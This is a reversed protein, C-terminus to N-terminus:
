QTLSCAVRYFKQPGAPGNTVTTSSNVAQLFGAPENTFPQRLDSTSQVCYFLGRLTNFRLTGAGATSEQAALTIPANLVSGDFYTKALAWVTKGCQSGAVRGTLDDASVHIGGWLRSIGAQDSADYYTAWQLQV